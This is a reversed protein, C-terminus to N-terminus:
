AAGAGAPGPGTARHGIVAVGVGSRVCIRFRGHTHSPVGRPLPAPPRKGLDRAGARAPGCALGRPPRRSWACGAPGPQRPSAPHRLHNEIMRRRVSYRLSILM